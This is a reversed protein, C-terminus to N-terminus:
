NPILGYFLWDNRKYQLTSTNSTLSKEFQFNRIMFYSFKSRALKGLLEDPPSTRAGGAEPSNTKLYQKLEEARNLYETIQFDFLFSCSVCFSTSRKKITFQIM